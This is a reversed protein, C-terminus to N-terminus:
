TTTHGYQTKLMLLSANMKTIEKVVKPPKGISELKLRLQLISFLRSLHLVGSAEDHGLLALIDNKLNAGSIPAESILDFVGIGRVSPLATSVVIQNGYNKRSLIAHFGEWADIGGFSELGVVM